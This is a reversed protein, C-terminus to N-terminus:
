IYVSSTKKYIYIYKAASRPVGGVSLPAAGGEDKLQAEM